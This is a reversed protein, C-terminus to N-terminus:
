AAGGEGGPSPRRRAREIVVIQGLSVGLVDAIQALNDLNPKSKGREIDSVAAHSIGLKEGLDRQSMLARRRAVNIREGIAPYLSPRESDYRM